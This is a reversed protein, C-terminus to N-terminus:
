PGRCPGQWYLPPCAGGTGFQSLGIFSRTMVPVGECGAPGAGCLSAGGACASALRASTASVGISAALSTMRDADPTGAPYIRYEPRPGDRYDAAWTRINRAVDAALDAAGPGFAHVLRSSQRSCPAAKLAAGQPQHALIVARLFRLAKMLRAPSAGTPPPMLLCQRIM